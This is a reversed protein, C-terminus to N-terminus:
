RRPRNPEGAAAHDRALNNLAAIRIDSRRARAVARAASFIAGAAASCASSTTPRAAAAHRGGAGGPRGGGRARASALRREHRTRLRRAAVRRPKPRVRRNAPDAGLTLAQQYHSDALEWDRPARPGRRAQTRTTRRTAEVADAAGGDYARAGRFVRRAADARRWDGRPANGRRNASPTPQRTTPSRRPVPPCASARSRRRDRVRGRGARRTGRARLPARPNGAGRTAGVAGARDAPPLLRRRALGIRKSSSRACASTAFDYGEGREPDPRPRGLEELAVAIEESSRGSAFRVTDADSTRGIVAAASLVQASLRASRTSDRRSRRAACRRYPRDTGDGTALLEAVFLSSGRARWSSGRRGSGTWATRMAFARVFMTAAGASGAPDAQRARRACRPPARSRARRHPSRLAADAPPGDLRRALYALADLSAPDCWHLDDVFV